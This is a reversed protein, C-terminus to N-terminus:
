LLFKKLRKEQIWVYITFYHLEQSSNTMYPIIQQSDGDDGRYDGDDGRYNGDDGM